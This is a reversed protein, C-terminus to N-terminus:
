WSQPVDTGQCTEGVQQGSTDSESARKLAGRPRRCRRPRRWARITGRHRPRRTSRPGAAWRVTWEGAVATRETSETSGFIASRSRSETASTFSPFAVQGDCNTGAAPVKIYETYVLGGKLEYLRHRNQTIMVGVDRQKICTVDKTNVATACGTALVESLLVAGLLWVGTLSAAGAAVAASSRRDKIRKVLV